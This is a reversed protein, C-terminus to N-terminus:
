FAGYWWYCSPRCYSQRKAFRFHQDRGVGCADEGLRGGACIMDETIWPAMTAKCTEETVVPVLVELLKDYSKGEKSSTKGWGLFIESSELIDNQYHEDKNEGYVLARKGYFTTTDSTKALCAPTYIALDVAEVLEIITIDHQHTRKNYEEHNSYRLVKLSMEALSGEGESTM